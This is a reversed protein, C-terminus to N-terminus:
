SAHLFQTSMCEHGSECPLLPLYTLQFTVNKMCTKHDHSHCTGFIDESEQPWTAPVLLLTYIHASVGKKLHNMQMMLHTMMMPKQSMPKKKKMLPLIM